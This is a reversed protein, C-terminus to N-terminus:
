REYIDSEKDINERIPESREMEKLCDIIMQSAKEASASSKLIESPRDKLFSSWSHIYAVANDPTDSDDIVQLESAIIQASIEAVLEERAYATTGKEASSNDDFRGLMIGTSHAMEHALTTVWDYVSKFNSMDPVRIKMDHSFYARTGDKIIEVEIGYKKCYYNFLRNFIDLSAGMQESIDDHNYHKFEFKSPLTEGNDSRIIDERSFVPTYRVIKKRVEQGTEKDLIIEGDDDLVPKETYFCIISCKAGKRIHYHPNEKRSNIDMMMRYTLYENKDLLLRNIGKYAIGTEYNCPQEPAGISFPKIWRFTTGNKEAEEMRNLIKETVIQAVNKGMIIVTVKRMMKM